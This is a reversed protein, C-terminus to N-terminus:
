SMKQANRGSINVCEREGEWIERDTYIQIDIELDICMGYLM